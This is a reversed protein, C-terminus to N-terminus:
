NSESLPTIKVVWTRPITTTHEVYDDLERVSSAIVVRRKDKKILYGTTMCVIIDASQAAHLPEWGTNGSADHWVVEVLPFTSWSKSEGAM